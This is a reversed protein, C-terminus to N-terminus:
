FPKQGKIVRLLVVVAAIFLLIHILAGASYALFAVAWIVVLFAAIYYLLKEMDNSHNNM